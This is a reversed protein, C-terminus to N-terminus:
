ETGEGTRKPTESPRMGKHIMEERTQDLRESLTEWERRAKDRTRRVNRRSGYAGGHEAQAVTALVGARGLDDAENGVFLVKALTPFDSGDGWANRMIAESLQSVGTATALATVHEAHPVGRMRQVGPTEMVEDPPVDLRYGNRAAADRVAWRQLTARTIIMTRGDKRLYEWSAPERTDIWVSATPCSKLVDRLRRAFLLVADQTVDDSVDDTGYLGYGSRTITASGDCRKRSRTADVTRCYGRAMRRLDAWDDATVRSMDEPTLDEGPVNVPIARGPIWNSVIVEGITQETIRM